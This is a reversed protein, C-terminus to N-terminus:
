GRTGFAHTYTAAPGRSGSPAKFVVGVGIERFRPQLINARHGASNMWAAVIQRPTSRGGSGWALNEGIFWSRAGRMYGTRSLRQVIGAGSRSTHGFYHKAVMDRTHSRAAKSLRRNLKLRRMGRKSREDNVLCVTAVALQKQNAAGPRDTENPCASASAAAPGLLACAVVASAALLRPNKRAPMRLADSPM